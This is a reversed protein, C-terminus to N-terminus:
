KKYKQFISIKRKSHKTPELPICSEILSTVMKKMTFYMKQRPKNKKKRYRCDFKSRKFFVEIELSSNSDNHVSVTKSEVTYNESHSVFKYSPDHSNGIKFFYFEGTIGSVQVDRNTSTM